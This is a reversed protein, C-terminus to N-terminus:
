TWHHAIEKPAVTVATAGSAGGLLFVRHWAPCAEESWKKEREETQLERAAQENRDVVVPSPPAIAVPPGVAPTISVAPIVAVVAVLISPLPRTPAVVPVVLL